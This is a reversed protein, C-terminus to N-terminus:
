MTLPTYEIRTVTLPDGADSTIDASEGVAIEAPTTWCMQGEDNMASTFCQKADALVYTGHDYHEDGANAIYNGSADISEMIEMDDMVFTWTTENLSMVEAPAEADAVAVTEEAPEASGCAALMAASTIVILKKM